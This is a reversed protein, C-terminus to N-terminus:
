VRFEIVGRHSKRQVSPVRNRRAQAGITMEVVVVVERAGGTYAAVKLVILAGCIWIM